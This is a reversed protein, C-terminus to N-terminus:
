RRHLHGPVGEDFSRRVGCVPPVDEVATGQSRPRATSVVAAYLQPMSFRRGRALCPPLAETLAWIWGQRHGRAGLAHRRRTKTSDRSHAQGAAASGARALGAAFCARPAAPPLSFLLHRGPPLVRWKPRRPLHPVLSRGRCHSPLWLRQVLRPPRLRRAQGGGAGPHGSGGSWAAPAGARAPIAPVPADLAEAGAGPHRAPQLRGHRRESSPHAWSPERPKPNVVFRTCVLSIRLRVAVM